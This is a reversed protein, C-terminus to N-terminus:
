EVKIEKRAGCTLCQYIVVEERNSSHNNFPMESKRWRTTYCVMDGGCKLGGDAENDCKPNKSTKHRNFKSPM